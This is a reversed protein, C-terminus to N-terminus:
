DKPNEKAHKFTIGIQIPEGNPDSIQVNDTFMAAYKGLLELAKLRDKRNVGLPNGDKDRYVDVELENFSLQKLANVIKAKIVAKEEGMMEEIRRSIEEKIEPNKLLEHGISGATDTSYGSREAAKTANLCVLYEDIFKSRKITM